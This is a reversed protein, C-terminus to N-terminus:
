YGNHYFKYKLRGKFIREYTPEDDELSDDTGYRANIDCDDVKQQVTDLQVLNILSEQYLWALHGDLHSKRSPM